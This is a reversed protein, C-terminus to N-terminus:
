HMDGANLKSSIHRHTSGSHGNGNMILSSLASTGATGSIYGSDARKLGTERGANLIMEAESTVTEDAEIEEGEEEEGDGEDDSRTDEAGTGTVVKYAVKGIMYLWVLTIVQLLVLLWYFARLLNASFCTRDPQSGLSHASLIWKDNPPLPEKTEVSFCSFPVLAAADYHVSKLIAIYVIHRSVVWTVLFVGFAFDCLKQYGLYRLIKAAQSEKDIDVNCAQTLLLLSVPLLIDVIDMACLITNGVRTMHYQYSGGILISTIIHHAFMQYHDKRRDEIHLVFIQQFWFALQALYYWKFLGSTELVPWETWMEKFNM